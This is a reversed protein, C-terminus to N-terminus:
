RTNKIVDVGKPPKFRFLNKNVTRNVKIRSFSLLSKQNLRDTLRMQILATKKFRLQITQFEANKDKPKLLYNNKNKEISFRHILSQTNDSLFLAPTAGLNNKLPKVTVQELDKDYIWLQKGDAIILQRTPYTMDWRFRNPRAIAMKGTSRQLLRGTETYVKQQFTAQMTRLQNLKEVLEQAPTLAFIANAQLSCVIFIIIKILQHYM